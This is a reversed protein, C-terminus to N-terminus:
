SESENLIDGGSNLRYRLNIFNECIIKIIGDQFLAFHLKIDSIDNTDCYQKM